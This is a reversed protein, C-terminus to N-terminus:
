SERRELLGQSIIKLLSKELPDALRTIIVQDGDKLGSSVFAYEGQVRAVTVPVTKLRGDQNVYVTNKFSVAWCPLRVVNKMTKGPISVKCFMGEVLPLGDSDKSIANAAPVRVAVTLTRTKNDFRVVRDLIGKWFHNNKDETWRIECKVPLLGSFWANDKNEDQKEFRLWDRADRSDIPILIELMSDDALTIYSFGPQVFQGKEMNASVVRGDFPAKVITRALDAKAATLRAIASALGSKAEQIRIPYLDVALAIQDAIDTSSNFASEARDVGSRTGVKNNEFLDRVREYEDKALERNRELTQQRAKDIEYQKELRLITSKTQRVSAEAVDRASKYNTPDIAFLLSGKSITQGVELRDHVQIVKGGVESALVVMDKARAEGSGTIFVEVDKSVVSLVEVKLGREKHNAEVPPKKMKVFMKMAMIGAFLLLACILVRTAVKVMQNPKKENEM